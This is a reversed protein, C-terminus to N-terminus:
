AVTGPASPCFNQAVGLTTERGNKLACPNPLQIVLIMYGVTREPSYGALLSV